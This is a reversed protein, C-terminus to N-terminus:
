VFDGCPKNFSTKKMRFAGWESPDEFDLVTYRGTIETSKFYRGTLSIQFQLDTTDSGWIWVENAWQVWFGEIEPDKSSLWTGTTSEDDEGFFCLKDKRSSKQKIPDFLDVSYAKNAIMTIAPQQPVRALDLSDPRAARLGQVEPEPAQALLALTSILVTALLLLTWRKM